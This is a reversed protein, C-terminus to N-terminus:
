KKAPAKQAPPKAAPAAAVPAWFPKEPMVLKKVNEDATKYVAIRPDACDGYKDCTVTGTLGKM